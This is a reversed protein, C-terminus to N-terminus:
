FTIVRFNCKYSNKKNNWLLNNRRTLITPIRETETVPIQINGTKESNNKFQPIICFSNM